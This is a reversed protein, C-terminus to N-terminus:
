GAKKSQYISISIIEDIVKFDVKADKFQIKIEKTVYDPNTTVYERYDTVSAINYGVICCGKKLLKNRELLKLDSLYREKM